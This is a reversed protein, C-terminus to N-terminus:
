LWPPQEPYVIVTEPKIQVVSPPPSHTGQEIVQGSLMVCGFSGFWHPAITLKAGVVVPVQPSTAHEGAEPENKGTPAVVTVQLVVCPDLQENVTVTLSVCAGTM